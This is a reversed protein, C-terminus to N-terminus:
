WADTLPLCRVFTDFFTLLQKHLVRHPAGEEEPRRGGEELSGSAAQHNAAYNSLLNMLVSKNGCSIEGLWDLLDDPVFQLSQM